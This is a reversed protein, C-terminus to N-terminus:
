GAAGTKAAVEKKLGGYVIRGDHFVAARAPLRAVAEASCSAAVLVGSASDGPLPWARQGQANLPLVNGTAIALSRSLQFEDLKRYLQAYLNAKELMDGTGFPLWHDTISDTGTMVFVGKEALQPLPMVGKGLPLTSAISMKQAAMRGALEDVLGDDLTALVFAHSITVKGRLQPNEEVQRIIYNVAALGAPAAEHLHFDIGAGTDLAIRFTTDLSKEMSTDVNTPDLGGIYQVGMQVAERMLPEISARLLGHQPFAVIECSLSDRHRALALQLHELSKLGSVPDINCHSRAITTGKSHMLAIVKEARAQSGPLLKPILKKEIEIMDVITKGRRPAQWPEGYFTKDLHTHMDRLAPLLLMGQADYRPLAGALPTGQPLIRAIKGDRIELTYLATRTDIVKGGDYEFGDELRVRTLLYPAGGPAALAASAPPCAAPTAAAASGAVSGLGTLAGAATLKGATSFFARRSPPPTTQFFTM